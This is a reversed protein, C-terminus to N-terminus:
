INTQLVFLPFITLCNIGRWGGGRGTMGFNRMSPEWASRNDGGWNDSSHSNNRANVKAM